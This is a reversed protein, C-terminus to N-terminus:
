EGAQEYKKIIEGEAIIFERLQDQIHKKQFLVEKHKVEAELLLEKAKVEAEKVIVEAEKKADFVDTELVKIKEKLAILVKQLKDVEMMALGLLAPLGLLLNRILFLFIREVNIGTKKVFYGFILATVGSLIATVSITTVLLRFAQSWEFSHGILWGCLFTLVSLIFWVYFPHPVVGFLNADLFNSAFVVLPLFVPAIYAVISNDKM